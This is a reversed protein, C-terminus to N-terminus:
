GAKWDIWPIVHSEGIFSEEFGADRIFITKSSDNVITQM